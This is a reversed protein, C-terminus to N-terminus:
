SRGTPGSVDQPFAQAADAHGLAASIGRLREIASGLAYVEQRVATLLSEAAFPELGQVPVIGRAVEELVNGLSELRRKSEDVNVIAGVVHGRIQSPHVIRSAKM